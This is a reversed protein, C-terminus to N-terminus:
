LRGQRSAEGGVSEKVRVKSALFESSKTGEKEMGGRHCMCVCLRNIHRHRM